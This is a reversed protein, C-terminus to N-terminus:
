RRRLNRRSAANDNDDIAGRIRDLNRRYRETQEIIRFDLDDEAEFRNRRLGSRRIHGLNRTEQNLGTLGNSDNSEALIPNGQNDLSVDHPGSNASTNPLDLGEENEAVTELNGDGSQSRSHNLNLNQTSNEIVSHSKQIKETIAKNQDLMFEQGHLLANLSKVLRNNQEAMLKMEYRLMKFEIKLDNLKLDTSENSEKLKNELNYSINGFQTGMTNDDMGNGSEDNINNTNASSSTYGGDLDDLDCDVIPQWLPNLAAEKYDRPNIMREDDFFKKFWNRNEFQRCYKKYDHIKMYSINGYSRFKRFLHFSTPLSFEQYIQTDILMALKNVEAVSRIKDIDDVALGTMLNMVVISIMVLFFLYILQTTRTYNLASTFEDSSMSGLIVDSYELEGIMWVFITLLGGTFDHFAVQNGLLMKFTFSFALVFIVLVGAFELFTMFVHQFMLIYLGFKPFYRAFLILNLWSLFVAVAGAIQQPGSKVSFSKNYMKQDYILLLRDFITKNAYQKGVENSTLIQYYDDFMLDSIFFITCSYLIIEVYNM